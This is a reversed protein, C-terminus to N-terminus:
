DRFFAAVRRREPVQTACEEGLQRLTATTKDNVVDLGVGDPQTFEVRAYAAGAAGAIRRLAQDSVMAGSDLALTLLREGM